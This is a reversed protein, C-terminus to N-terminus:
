TLDIANLDVFLNRRPELSSKPDRSKMASLIPFRLKCSGLGCSVVPDSVSWRM